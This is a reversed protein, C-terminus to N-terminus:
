SWGHRHGVEVGISNGQLSSELCHRHLPIGSFESGHATLTQGVQSREVSSDVRKGIKGITKKALLQNIVTCGPIPNEYYVTEKKSIYLM